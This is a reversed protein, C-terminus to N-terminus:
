PATGLNLPLHAGAGRTCGRAHNRVSRGRSRVRANAAQPVRARSTPESSQLSQACGGHPRAPQAKAGADSCPPTPAIRAYRCGEQPLFVHQFESIEEAKNHKNNQEQESKASSESRNVVILIQPLLNKHCGRQKHKHQQQARPERAPNKFTISTALSHTERWRKSRQM